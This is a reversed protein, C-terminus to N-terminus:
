IFGEIKLIDEDIELLMGTLYSAIDEKKMKMLKNFIIDEKEM